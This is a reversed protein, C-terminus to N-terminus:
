RPKPPIHLQLSVSLSDASRCEMRAGKQPEKVLFAHLRERKRKKFYDGYAYLCFSGLIPNPQM